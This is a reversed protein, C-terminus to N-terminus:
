WPLLPTLIKAVTAFNQRPVLPSTAPNPTPWRPTSCKRRSTRLKPMQIPSLIISIETSPWTSSGTDLIVNAPKKQSGVTIMGSYDADMFINTIPIRVVKTSIKSAAPSPAPM